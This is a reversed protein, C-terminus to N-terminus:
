LFTVQSRWGKKVAQPYVTQYPQKVAENNLSIDSQKQEIKTENQGLNTGVECSGEEADEVYIDNQMAQYKRKLKKHKTMLRDVKANLEIIHEFLLQNDTYYAKKEAKEVPSNNVVKQAVTPQTDKRKVIRYKGNKYQKVDYFPQNIGNQHNAIITAKDADSLDAVPKKPIFNPESKAKPTETLINAEPNAQEAQVLNIEKEVVEEAPTEDLM